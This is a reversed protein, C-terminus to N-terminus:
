GKKRTKKRAKKIQSGAKKAGKHGVKLAGNIISISEPFVFVLIGVIVIFLIAFVILMTFPNTTLSNFFDNVGAWGYQSFSSPRGYNTPIPQTYKVTWQGVVFQTITFDFTVVDGQSKFLVGDWWSQSGFSNLTVPFYVANGFYQPNLTTGKYSYIQDPDATEEGGIGFNRLKLGIDSTQSAPNVIINQQNHSPQVGGDSSHGVYSIGSLQVAAIAFYAKEQGQFYWTPTTDLKIWVTVDSYRGNEQDWESHSFASSGGDPNASISVYFKTKWEEMQYLTKTTGKTISWTYTKYPNKILDFNKAFPNSLVVGGVNFEGPVSSAEPIFVSTMEGVIKPLGSYQSAVGDGKFSFGMGDLKVYPNAPVNWSTRYGGQQSAAYNKGNYSIGAFSPKAGEYANSYSGGVSLLNLPGVVLYMVFVAIFLGVVVWKNKGSVINKLISKFTKQKMM